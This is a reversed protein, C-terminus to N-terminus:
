PTVETHLRAAAVGAAQLEHGLTQVFAPPGAIYFSCDIDFLDARIAAAMQAAGQAADTHSSLAYDFGDLAESWARCQNALFHGDRRTALRLELPHKM